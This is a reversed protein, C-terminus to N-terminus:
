IYSCRNEMLLFICCLTLSTYVQLSGLLYSKLLELVITCLIRTLKDITIGIRAVFFRFFSLLVLKVWATKGHVLLIIM